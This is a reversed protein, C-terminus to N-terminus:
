NVFNAVHNVSHKSISLPICQLFLPDLSGRSYLLGDDHTNSRFIWVMINKLNVFFM